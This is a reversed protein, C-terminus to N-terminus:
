KVATQMTRTYIELLMRYNADACYKDEFERRARRGMEASAEPHDWLWAAKDALKEPNKPQFRLGTVGDIVLERMAGLDSAIVPTGCSYAEAISVPFGEYWESPVLLYRAAGIAEM